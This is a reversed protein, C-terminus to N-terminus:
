AQRRRRLALLAGGILLLMGSTPEPVSAGNFAPAATFSPLEPGGITAIYGSGILQDYTMEAGKYVSDLTANYLEVYFSHGTSGYDGLDSRMPLVKGDVAEYYGDLLTGDSAYLAAYSYEGTYSADAAGTDVQWYLVDAKAFGAMALVAVLAVLKHITKM